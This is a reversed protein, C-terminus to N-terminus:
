SNHPAEPPPSIAPILRTMASRLGSVRTRTTSGSAKTEQAPSSPSTNETALRTALAEMAKTRAEADSRDPAKPAQKVYLRYHQIAQALHPLSRDAVGLEQYTRALQYLVADTHGLERARQFFTLATKYDGATFAEVGKEYPAKSGLDALQAEAPAAGLTPSVSGLWLGAM